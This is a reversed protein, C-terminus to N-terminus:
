FEHVVNKRQKQQKATIWHNLCVILMLLLLKKEDLLNQFFFFFLNMVFFSLVLIYRNLYITTVFYSNAFQYDLIFVEYITCSTSFNSFINLNQEEGFLEYLFLKFIISFRTKRSFLNRNM